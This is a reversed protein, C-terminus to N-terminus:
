RLSKGALSLIGLDRPRRTGSAPWAHSPRVRGSGASTPEIVCFAYPWGGDVRQRRDLSLCATPRRRALITRGARNSPIVLPFPMFIHRTPLKTPIRRNNTSQPELPPPEPVVAQVVPVPLLRSHRSIVAFAATAPPSWAARLSQTIAPPTAESVHEWTPASPPQLVVDEPPPILRDVVM